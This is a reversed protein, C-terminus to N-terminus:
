KARLKRLEGEAKDDLERQEVPLMAKYRDLGANLCYTFMEEAEVASESKDLEAALRAVEAKSAGITTKLWVYKSSMSQRLSTELDPRDSLVLTAQHMTRACLFSMEPARVLKFREPIPKQAMASNAMALLHLSLVGVIFAKSNGM